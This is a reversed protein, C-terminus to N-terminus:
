FTIQVVYYTRALGHECLSTYQSHEIESRLLDADSMLM